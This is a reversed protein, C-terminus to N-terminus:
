TAPCSLRTSVLNQDPIRIGIDVKSGGGLQEPPRYLACVVFSKNEEVGLLTSVVPLSVEGYLALGKGIAYSSPKGAIQTVPSDVSSACVAIRRMKVDRLLDTDGLVSLLDHLCLDGEYLGYITYDLQKTNDQTKRELYVLVEAKHTDSISVKGAFRVLFGSGGASASTHIAMALRPQEVTVPGFSITSSLNGEFEITGPKIHILAEAASHSHVSVAGYLTVGSSKSMILVMSSITIEHDTHIDIDGNFRQNYLQKLTALTCEELYGAVEFDDTPYTLLFSPSNHAHAHTRAHTHTHTHTSLCLGKALQGQLM